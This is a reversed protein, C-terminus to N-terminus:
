LRRRRVVYLVLVIAVGAAVSTRVPDLSGDDRRFVRMARDRAAQAMSAPSVRHQLADLRDALASRTAEIEAEIQDPSRPEPRTVVPRAPETASGTVQSV